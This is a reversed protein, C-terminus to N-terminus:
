LVGLLSELFTALSQDATLCHRVPEYTGYGFELNEWQVGLMLVGHVFKAARIASVVHEEMAEGGGHGNDELAAATSVNNYEELVRAVFDGVIGPFQAEIEDFTKEMQGIGPVNATFYPVGQYSFLVGQVTAAM